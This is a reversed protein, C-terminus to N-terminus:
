FFALSILLIYGIVLSIGIIIILSNKKYKNERVPKLYRKRKVM